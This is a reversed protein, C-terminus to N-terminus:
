LNLALNSERAMFFNQPWKESAKLIFWKCYTHSYTYKSKNIITIYIQDVKSAWRNLYIRTSVTIQHHYRSTKNILLNLLLEFHYNVPFSPMHISYLLIIGSAYMRNHIYQTYHKIIPWFSTFHINRNLKVQYITVSPNAQMNSCWAKWM